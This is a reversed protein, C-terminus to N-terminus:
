GDAQRSLPLSKEQERGMEGYITNLKDSVVLYTITTASLVYTPLQKNHYGM